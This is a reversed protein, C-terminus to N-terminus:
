TSVCFPNQCGPERREVPVIALLLKLTYIVVVTGTFDGFAM